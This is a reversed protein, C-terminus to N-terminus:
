RSSGAYTGDRMELGLYAAIMAPDSLVERPTGECLVRGADMGVIRDAVDAVLGVDHEVLVISVGTEDRIRRLLPRLARAEAEAVGSAPEDLLLLRPRLVLMAAFELMRLTGYSLEDATADRFPGLDVLEMVREVREIVAAEETRAAPLFLGNALLGRRMQTHAAVLLNERCTMTKFM